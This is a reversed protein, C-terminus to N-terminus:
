SNAEPVDMEKPAEGEIKTATTEVEVEEKVISEDVDVMTEDPTSKPVEATSTSASASEPVPAAPTKTTTDESMETDGENDVVTPKPSDARSPADSPGGENVETTPEVAKTEIIEASPEINTEPAPAAVVEDAEKNPVEPTAVGSDMEVDSVVKNANQLETINRRKIAGDQRSVGNAAAMEEDDSDEFEDDREIHQDWRRKTNRADPNEDEDLDDLIDEDEDTGGLITTRPIETMQVSPAHATQKLNEIVQIKIKELYDKSNANDM